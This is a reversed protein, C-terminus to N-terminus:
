GKAKKLAKEGRRYEAIDKLTGNISLYLGFGIFGLTPVIMIYAITMSPYFIVAASVIFILARLLLDFKKKFLYKAHISFTLGITGIMVIIVALLQQRGVEVVMDPRTFVAFMLVLLPLCYQLSQIITKTYDSDAIKSTVVATLSTPPSLHGFVGIFFAFFHVSWRELGLSIMTPAVALAVMIYVPSPPLGMGLLYGFLFAVLVVAAVHFDAAQVLLAGVKTPIGTVTLSGALIGLLSLLVALDSGLTSLTDVSKLYPKFFGKIGALSNFTKYNQIIFVFTLFIVLGVLVRVAAVMAPMRYVGMLIILAIIVSAFAFLNAKDVLKIESDGLLDIND